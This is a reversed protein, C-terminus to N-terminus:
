WASVDWVLVTGDDSWSALRRGDPSFALGLVEGGHGRLRTLREEDGVSWLEIVPTLGAFAVLKGGPSVALPIESSGTWAQVEFRVEGRETGLVVIASPHGPWAAIASGDPSFTAQNATVATSYNLGALTKADWVLLMGGPGPAAVRGGDRSLTGGRASGTSAPLIGVSGAGSVVLGNAQDYTVRVLDPGRWAFGATREVDYHARERGTQADLVSLGGETGLAALSGGDPSIRLDVVCPGAERVKRLLTGRAADFLLVAGGTGGVALRSSDDSWDVASVGGVPPALPPTPDLVPEWSKTDWVFLRGHRTAALRRGDPSFAIGDVGQAGASGPFFDRVVSGDRADLIRISSGATAVLAGDPSIALRGHGPDPAIRWREEGTDAEVAVLDARVGSGARAFRVLFTGDPSWAMGAVAAKVRATEFLVGGSQPDLLAFTQGNAALRTGDPSFALDFAPLNDYRSVEEGTGVDHITVVSAQTPVGRRLPLSWSAALRSGDPSLAIGYTSRIPIRRRLGGSELDWVEVHDTNWVAASGASFAPPGVPNWGVEESDGFLGGLFRRSEVRVTGPGPDRIEVRWVLEGTAIDVRGLEAPGVRAAVTRGDRSFAIPGRLPDPVLRGLRATAWPPLPDGCSDQGPPPPEPRRGHLLFFVVAGAVLVVVM